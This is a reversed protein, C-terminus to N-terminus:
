HFDKHHIISLLSGVQVYKSALSIKVKTTFWLSSDSIQSTLSLPLWQNVIFTSLTVLLTMKITCGWAPNLSVCHACLVNINLKFRITNHLRIGILYTYIYSTVSHLLDIGYNYMISRDGEIDIYERNGATHWITCLLGENNPHWM